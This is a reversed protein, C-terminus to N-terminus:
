CLRLCAEFFIGALVVISSSVPDPENVRDGLIMIKGICLRDSRHAHTLSNAFLELSRILSRLQGSALSSRIACYVFDLNSMFAYGLSHGHSVGCTVAAEVHRCALTKLPTNEGEASM